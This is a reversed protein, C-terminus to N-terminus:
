ILNYKVEMSESFLYGHPNTMGASEISLLNKVEEAM